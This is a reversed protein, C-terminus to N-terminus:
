KVLFINRANPLNKPRKHLLNWEEPINDRKSQRIPLQLESSNRDEMNVM